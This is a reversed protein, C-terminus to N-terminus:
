FWSGTRSNISITILSIFMFAIASFIIFVMYAISWSIVENKRMGLKLKMDPKVIVNMKKDIQVEVIENDLDNVIEFFFPRILNEKM